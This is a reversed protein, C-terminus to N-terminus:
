KEEDDGFFDDADLNIAESILGNSFDFVDIDKFLTSITSDIYEASEKFYETTDCLEGNCNVKVIKHANAKKFEKPRDRYVRDNYFHDFEDKFCMDAGIIYIESAGLMAAFHMASLVVSGLSFNQSGIPGTLMGEQGNSKYKRVDPKGDFNARTTKILNYKSPYLEIGKWHVIRAEVFNLALNSSLM